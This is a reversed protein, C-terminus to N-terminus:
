KNKNRDVPNRDLIFEVGVSSALLFNFLERSSMRSQSRGAILDVWCQGLMGVSTFMSAFDRGDSALSSGTKNAARRPGCFTVVLTLTM